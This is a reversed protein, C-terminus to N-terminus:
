EYDKPNFLDTVKKGLRFQDVILWIFVTGIIAGLVRGIIELLAIILKM